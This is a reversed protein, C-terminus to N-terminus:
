FSGLANASWAQKLNVLSLLQTGRQLAVGDIVTDTAATQTSQGIVSKTRQLQLGLFMSRSREPVTSSYRMLFSQFLQPRLGPNGITLALPNTYDVDDQLQGINPVRTTTNWTVRLNRNKSLNNNFVVSPLIDYYTHNLVLPDPTVRESRLTSRQVALNVTL